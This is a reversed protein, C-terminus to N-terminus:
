DPGVKKAMAARSACSALVSERKGMKHIKKNGNNGAPPPLFFLLSSTLFVFCSIHKTEEPTTKRKKGRSKKLFLPFVMHKQARTNVRIGLDPQVYSVLSVAM